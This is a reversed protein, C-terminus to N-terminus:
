QVLITVWIALNMPGVHPGGPDQRGWAPGMNAGHVKSDPYCDLLMADNSLKSRANAETELEKRSSNHLKLYYDINANYISQWICLWPGTESFINRMSILQLM